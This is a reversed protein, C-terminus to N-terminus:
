AGFKRSGFGQGEQVGEGVQMHKPIGHNKLLEYFNNLGFISLLVVGMYAIFQKRTMEAELLSNQKPRM